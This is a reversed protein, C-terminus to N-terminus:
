LKKSRKWIDPYGSSQSSNKFLLVLQKLLSKGCIKIMRISINGYGHTKNINLARIIKLIEVEKFDLSKLRAQALFIQDVPLLSGNKSTYM